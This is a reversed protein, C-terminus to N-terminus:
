PDRNSEADQEAKVILVSKAQLNYHAAVIKGVAELERNMREVRDYHENWLWQIKSEYLQVKDHTEIRDAEIDHRLKTYLEKVIKIDDLLEQM